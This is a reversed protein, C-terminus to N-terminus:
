WKGSQDYKEAWMRPYIFLFLFMTGYLVAMYLALLQIIIQTGLLRFPRQLNDRMLKTFADPKKYVARSQSGLDARRQAERRRTQELRPEYMEPLLVAAIVIVAASAISIIWFIWRWGIGESIFAGCIPGIAPGLLPAAMFIAFARGREDPRWLDALVGGAISDAVSAGFGSLLRLALLQALTTAAGCSVNWVLFFLSGYLLIPKRGYVESLPALLLPSLGVGILVLSNVLVWDYPRVINLDRSIDGEAPALM